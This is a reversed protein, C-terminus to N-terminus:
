PGGPAPVPRTRTLIDALRSDFGLARVRAVIQAVDYEVRGFTVALDTTDLTAYAARPDYDRPQGCSGPNMLLASGERRVFPIHTHGMVVVDVDYAHFASWDPRDPYIYEDPQWPSGHCLLIRRGDLLLERQMPLDALWARQEASLLRSAYDRYTSWSELSRADRGLLYRDHNGNVCVCENVRLLDIVECVDPYYGVIDGAVLIRDVTEEALAHLAAATGPANGHPDALLGIRM